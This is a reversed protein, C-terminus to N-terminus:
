LSKFIKNLNNALKRAGTDVAAITAKFADLCILSVM